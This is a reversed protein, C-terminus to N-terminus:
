VLNLNEVSQLLNLQSMKIGRYLIVRMTPLFNRNKKSKKTSM